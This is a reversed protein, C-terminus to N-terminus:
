FGNATMINHLSFDEGVQRDFLENILTFPSGHRNDIWYCNFNVFTIYKNSVKIESM